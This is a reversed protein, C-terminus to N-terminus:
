FVTYSMNPGRIAWIHYPVSAGRYIISSYQIHCLITRKKTCIVMGLNTNDTIKSGRLLTEIANNALQPETTIRRQQYRGALTLVCMKFM